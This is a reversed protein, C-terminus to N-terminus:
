PKVESGRRLLALLAIGGVLIGVAILIMSGTAAGTAALVGGTGAGTGYM